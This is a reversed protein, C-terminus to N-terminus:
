LKTSKGSPMGFCINLSKCFTRTAPRSSRMLRTLWFGGFGGRSEVPLCPSRLINLLRLAL